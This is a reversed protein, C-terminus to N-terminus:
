RCLKHALWDGVGSLDETPLCGPAASDFLIQVRGPFEDDGAWLQVAVALLPFAQFRFCADPPSLGPGAGGPMETGGLTVAAARFGGIDAGFREVLLMEAHEAFARAYFLGDPLERFTLWRGPEPALASKVTVLYHMLVIAISPHAAVEGSPHPILYDRGFWPVIV